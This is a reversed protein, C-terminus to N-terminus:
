AGFTVEIDMAGSQPPAGLGCQFAINVAIPTVGSPITFSFTNSGPPSNIVQGSDFYNVTFAGNQVKVQYATTGSSSRVNITLKCTQAGSPVVLLSNSNTDDYILVAGINIMTCSGIFRIANPTPFTVSLSDSNPPATHTETDPPVNWVINNFFTCGSYTLAFSCTNGAADIMACTFGTGIPAIPNGVIFGDSQLTLGGPLGAGGAFRYPPVGGIGALQFNYFSGVSPTPISAKNSINLVFVTFDKQMFNGKTDVARLTFTFAGSATPIGSLFATTGTDQVFGVGPPLTGGIRAISYPGFGGTVSIVSLYNQSLCANTISGFCVSNLNAQQCAYSIAIEDAQQQNFARFIGAKVTYTFPLGDACFVTCFAAANLFTQIRRGFQDTWPSAPGSSGPGCDGTLCGIQDRDACQQADQQSVTSDCFSPNNAPDDFNWGLEPVSNGWSYGIFILRDPPESTLNAFPSDTGPCDVRCPCPMNM